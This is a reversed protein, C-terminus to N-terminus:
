YRIINVVKGDSEIKVVGSEKINFRNEPSLYLLPDKKKKTKSVKQNIVQNATQNAIESSQESLMEADPIVENKATKKSYVLYSPHSKDIFESSINSPLASHSVILVDSVQKVSSTITSTITTTTATVLTSSAIFKQVKPSANGAFLVNTIGYSINFLVEPPSAKSYSFNAPDAPFLVDLRTKSDLNLIQGLDIKEMNINLETATQIFTEYIQDTSSALGLSTLTYKPLYIDGVEYRQIVDILGGVNKGVNNTAILIDIRRSYFPLIESIYRIIESNSGGDILIRNDEPTRIFISRGSKPAFVYVELIPQRHEQKWYYAGLTSSAITIGAVVIIPKIFSKTKM